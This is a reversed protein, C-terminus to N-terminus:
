QKNREHSKNIKIECSFIFSKFNLQSNKKAQRSTVRVKSSTSKFCSTILLSNNIGTCMHMNVLIDIYNMNTNNFNNIVVCLALMLSLAM